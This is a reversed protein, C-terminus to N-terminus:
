ANAECSALYEDKRCANSSQIRAKLRSKRNYVVEIKEDLFLSISRASFGMVLYLFLRYDAEKLKPFDERFSSWMGGSFKDVNRALEDLYESDNTFNQIISEVEAVIRKKELRVDKSEYYAACLTNVISYKDKFLRKVSDSMRSGTKMQRLLDANITEANSIIREQERQKELLKKRIVYVAFACIILLILIILSWLVREGKIRENRLMEKNYEYSSVAGSVNNRLLFALVSDQENKYQSLVTYAKEYDGRAEYIEFPTDENELCVNEAVERIDAPISDSDSQSLAIQLNDKDYRTLVSKDLRYAAAYKDIAASNNGCAFGSLAAIRLAAAMLVTDGAEEAKRLLRSAEDIAEQYSGNNNYATAVDLAAYNVWDDYGGKVFAEYAEKAYLVQKSGDFLHVYLKFLGRACYAQQRYLSYERSIDLGRLMSVAAEGYKGANMQIIGSQFLALSVEESDGKKLFYEACAKILSDNDEDIFNKYRAQTLLLGYRAKYDESADEPIAMSELLCLASDPREEMLSKVADLQENNDKSCASGLLVVLPLLIIAFLINNNM